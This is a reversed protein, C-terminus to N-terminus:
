KKPIKLFKLKEIKTKTKVWAYKSQEPLGDLQKDKLFKEIITLNTYLFQTM